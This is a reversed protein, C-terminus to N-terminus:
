RLRYVVRELAHVVRHIIADRNHSQVAGVLQVRHAELEAILDPARDGGGVAIVVDPDDHQGPGARLCKRAAIVEAGVLHLQVDLAQGRARPHIQFECLRYPSGALGRDRHDVAVAEAAPELQRLHAVHAVGGVVRREANDLRAEGHSDHRHHHRPQDALGAALQDVGTVRETDVLCM